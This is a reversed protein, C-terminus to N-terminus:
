LGLLEQFNRPFSPHIFFTSDLTKKFKDYDLIVVSGDEQLYLEFDWAAHGRSWLQKWFYALEEILRRLDFGAPIRDEVGLFIPTDVDVAEMEYVSSKVLYPARLVTYFPNSLIKLVIEHIEKQEDASYGKAKRRCIKVVTTHSHYRITGNTGEWQDLASM